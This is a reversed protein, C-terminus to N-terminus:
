SFLTFNGYQDAPPVRNLLSPEDFNPNDVKPNVTYRDLPKEVYPKLFSIISEETNSENLWEIIMETELIAPMRDTIDEVERNAPTTIMMFTHITEGLESEFSDWLGAIAFPANDSLHFRYPTRGKKSLAKWEYFGDALIICRQSKLNKRLSAKNPIDEVPALVLKKSVGKSKTFAPNIGWYFFSLGEPNDGTIVPLLQTPCANYRARYAEPVEANFYQDILDPSATISYNLAM